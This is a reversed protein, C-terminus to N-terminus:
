KQPTAKIILPILAGTSPKIPYHHTVRFLSQMVGSHSTLSIVQDQQAENWVQTLAQQIRADLHADQERTTTWLQDGESFGAEFRM